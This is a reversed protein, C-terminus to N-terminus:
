VNTEVLLFSARNCRKSRHITKIPDRFGTVPSRELSGEIKQCPNSQNERAVLEGSAQIQSATEALGAPQQVLRASAPSNVSTQQELTAPDKYRSLMITSGCKSMGSTPVLQMQCVGNIVLKHVM